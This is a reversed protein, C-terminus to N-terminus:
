ASVERWTAVHRFSANIIVEDTIPSIEVPARRKRRWCIHARLVTQRAAYYLSRCVPM